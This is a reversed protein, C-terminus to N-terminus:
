TNFLNINQGPAVTVIAKKWASKRIYFKRGRRGRKKPIIATNIKVVDVEFIIEIAEKIQIKNANLAVEFTYQNNDDSAINSKETIVPRLIVDYLHLAKAM